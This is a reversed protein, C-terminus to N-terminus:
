PLEVVEVGHCAMMLTKTRQWWPLKRTYASKADAVVRKWAVDDASPELWVFDAKYMGLHEGGPAFLSFRVQRRLGKIEGAAQRLKLQGWVKAELKSDFKGDSVTTKVAGHKSRGALVGVKLAQAAAFPASPPYKETQAYGFGIVEDDGSCRHTRVTSRAKLKALRENYERLETENRPIM